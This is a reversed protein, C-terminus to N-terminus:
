HKRGQMIRKAPAGVEPAVVVVAVLSYLVFIMLATNYM